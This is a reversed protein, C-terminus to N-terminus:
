EERMAGDKKHKDQLNWMHSFVHCRLSDPINQKIHEEGTGNEQM